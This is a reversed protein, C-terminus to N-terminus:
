SKLGMWGLDPNFQIKTWGLIQIGAGGILTLRFTQEKWPKLGPGGILTLSFRKNGGPNPDRAKILTLRIQQGRWSKVTKRVQIPNTIYSESLLTQQQQCDKKFELFESPHKRFSFITKILIRVGFQLRCEGSVTSPKGCGYTPYLWPRIIRRTIRKTVLNCCFTNGSTVLQM